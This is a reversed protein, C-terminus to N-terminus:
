LSQSLNGRRQWGYLYSYQSTKATRYLSRQHIPSGQDTNFIAHTGWRAIAEQVADVCFQVDMTNSLRWALVKRSYWDVVACLYMWGKHMRDIACVQNAHTVAKNRLLYPYIKHQPHRASTCPQCYLASIHMRKMLTRVHRRGVCHGQRQLLGRLMRSGAFPHAVHLADKAFKHIVRPHKSFVPSFVAFFRCSVM